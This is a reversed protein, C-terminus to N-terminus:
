EIAIQFSMFTSKEDNLVLLEGQRDIRCAGAAPVHAFARSLRDGGL